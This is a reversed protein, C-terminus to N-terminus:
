KITTTKTDQKLQKPNNIWFFFFFFLQKPNQKLLIMLRMVVKTFAVEALRLPGDYFKYKGRFFIYDLIALFAMGVPTRLVIM